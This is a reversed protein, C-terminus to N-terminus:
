EIGDSIADNIKLFLDNAIDKLYKEIYEIREEESMQPFSHLIVSGIIRELNHYESNTGDKIILNSIYQPKPPKM